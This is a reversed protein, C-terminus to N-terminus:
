QLICKGEGGRHEHQTADVNHNFTGQLPLTKYDRREEGGEGGRIGGGGLGQTRAIAKCLPGNDSLKLFADLTQCVSDAKMDARSGKSEREREGREGEIEIESM